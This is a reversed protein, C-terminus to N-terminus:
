CDQYILVDYFEHCMEVKSEEWFELNQVMKRIWREHVYGHFLGREDDIALDKIINTTKYKKELNKNIKDISLHRRLMFRFRRFRFDCTYFFDQAVYRTLYFYEKWFYWIVAAIVVIHFTTSLIINIREIIELM